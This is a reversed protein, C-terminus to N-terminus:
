PCIPISQNAFAPLAGQSASTHCFRAMIRNKSDTMRYMSQATWFTGGAIVGLASIATLSIMFMLCGGCAKACAGPSCEIGAEEQVYTVPPQPVSRSSPMGKKNPPPPNLFVM